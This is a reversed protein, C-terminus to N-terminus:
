ITVDLMSLKVFQECVDVPVDNCRCRQMQTPIVCSCLRFNLDTHLVYLLCIAAAVM